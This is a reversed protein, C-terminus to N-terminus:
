GLQRPAWHRDVSAHINDLLHACSQRTRVVQAHHVAVQLAVVDQQGCAAPTLVEDLDEIKAQGGQGV